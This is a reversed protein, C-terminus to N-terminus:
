VERHTKQTGVVFARAHVLCILQMLLEDGLRATTSWMGTWNKTKCLGVSTSNNPVCVYVIGAMWCLRFLAYIHCVWTANLSDLCLPAFSVFLCFFFSIFHVCWGVCMIAKAVDNCGFGLLSVSGTSHTELAITWCNSTLTRNSKTTCMIKRIADGTGVRYLSFPM